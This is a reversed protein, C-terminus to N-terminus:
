RPPPVIMRRPIPIEIGEREFRNKIRRLMERRVAFMRDPRTKMMFKVVAASEGLSDVGLMIPEEIVDESWSEDERMERALELLLAMVRDVDEHFAVGIEFVARAWGYTRNTIRTIQGNPIFHARGELDRLLTTRMNAREVTGTVGDITVNWYIQPPGLFDSCGGWTLQEISVRVETEQADAAGAFSVLTLTSLLAFCRSRTRTTATRKM